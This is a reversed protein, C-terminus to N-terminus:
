SEEPLGTVTGYAKSARRLTADGFATGTGPIDRGDADVEIIVYGHRGRHGLPTVFVGPPEVEFAGKDYTFKVGGITVTGNLETEVRWRRNEFWPALRKTWADSM